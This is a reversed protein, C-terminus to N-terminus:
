LFLDFDFSLGQGCRRTSCLSLRPSTTAEKSFNVSGKHILAINAVTTLVQLFHCHGCTVVLM